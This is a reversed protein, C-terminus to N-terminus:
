WAVVSTTCWRLSRFDKSSQRALTYRRESRSHKRRTCRKSKPLDKIKLSRPQPRYTATPCASGDTWLYTPRPESTWHDKPRPVSPACPWRPTLHAQTRWPHSEPSTMSRFGGSDSGCAEQLDSYTGHPQLDMSVWKSFDLDWAVWRASTPRGSRWQPVQLHWQCHKAIAWQPAIRLSSQRSYNLFSCTVSSDCPKFGRCSMRPPDTPWCVWAVSCGPPKCSLSLCNQCVFTRCPPRNHPQISHRTQNFHHKTHALATTYVCVYHASDDPIIIQKCIRTSGDIEHSSSHHHTSKKSWRCGLHDQQIEKWGAMGLQRQPTSAPMNSDKRSIVVVVMLLDLAM